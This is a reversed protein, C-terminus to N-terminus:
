FPLETPPTFNEDIIYDPKWEESLGFKDILHHCAEININYYATQNYGKPM